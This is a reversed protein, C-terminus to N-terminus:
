YFETMATVSATLLFDNVVKALLVTIRGLNNRLIFFQSLGPVKEFWYEFFWRANALHWFPDSEVLGYAPRLTKM